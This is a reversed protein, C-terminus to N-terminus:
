PARTSCCSVARAGELEGTVQDIAVYGASGRHHYRRVVDPRARFGSLDGSFKKTLLMRGLLADGSVEANPLPQLTVEFSGTARRAFRTEFRRLLKFHPNEIIGFVNGWPDLVDAVLIGEGVDQIEGARRPGSNSCAPM